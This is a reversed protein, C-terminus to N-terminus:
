WKWDESDFANPSVRDLLMEREAPRSAAFAEKWGNRPARHPAIVLGAPTIRLEVVDGLGCQAILPKPIRIGRSNGIRTLELRM